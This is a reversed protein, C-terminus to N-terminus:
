LPLLIFLYGWSCVFEQSAGVRSRSGLKYGECTLMTITVAIMASQLSQQTVGLQEMM